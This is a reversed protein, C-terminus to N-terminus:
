LPSKKKKEKVYTEWHQTLFCFRGEFQPKKINPMVGFPVSNLGIWDTSIPIHSYYFMRM